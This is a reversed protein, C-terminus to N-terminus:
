GSPSSRSEATPRTAGDIGAVVLTLDDDFASRGTWEAIRAPLAEAIREAPLAAHGALFEQLREDGFMEGAPSLAELIGDTFVLLRDGAELPLSAESYVARRLRGMVLGGQALEEVRGESRRWLLAPPHGASAWTIRGAELDLFAYFATIFQNRLKGHFIQNMESLLRAPSAAHPAEAAVAVKLMSAVLAAPVGHGSVDAVLVGTRRGEGPLFDYFDGAVETAPVYRAALDLGAIRPPAEPLTSMQIKRATELEQRISALREQSDFIRRAAVAGLSCMFFFVGVPEANDRWPTLGLARLNELVIFVAMVLFSGRLLGLDSARMEGPVFLNAVIVVMGALVIGHYIGLLGGPRVAVIEWPIAVVALAAHIQWIRRISSRWGRGIVREFFLFAPVPLVYTIIDLLKDWLPEPPSYLIGVTRTDLLLRLAYLSALLSFYLLTPDGSKRRALAIAGAALGLGLIVFGIPAALADHRLAARLLEPTM